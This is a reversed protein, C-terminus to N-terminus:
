AVMLSLSDSRVSSSAVEGSMRLTSTSKRFISARGATATLPESTLAMMEPVKYGSLREACWARLAAESVDGTRAVIVEHVRGGLV